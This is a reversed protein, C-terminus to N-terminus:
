LRPDTLPLSFAADVNMGYRAKAHKRGGDRIPSGVLGVREYIDKPLELRLVGPTTLDRLWCEQLTPRALLFGQRVMGSSM